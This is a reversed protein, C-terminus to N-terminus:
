KSFDVSPLEWTGSKNLDTELSRLTALGGPRSTTTSSSKCTLFSRESADTLASRSTTCTSYSRESYDTLGVVTRLGSINTSMSSRESIDTMMPPRKSTLSSSVSSRQFSNPMALPLRIDDTEEPQQPKTNLTTEAQNTETAIEWFYYRMRRAARSERDQISKAM